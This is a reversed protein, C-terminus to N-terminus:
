ILAKIKQVLKLAQPEDPAEAYIRIIPETNSKRLHLWRDKWIFKIGDIINKEANEFLLTAKKIIEDPDIKDLNLKDKVIKFQPMSQHIKSLSDMSQSMRNLIMTVGVLSDRGLHAERLIVGGNGEGGLNSNIENMKKVVNIEGVASRVVSSNKEKALKELALSSSLNLVFKESQNLENLYSDAAIVITYEEGLPEGEENVIALRDADPDIAFGVDANSDKVMKSLDKLNEPLPETGRTFNGDPECNLEIVECGLSQLMLPLAQAGAGNVSDIVVKFKRKQIRNLKICKLSVCSIIHKQIANQEPWIIGLDDAIKVAINKDVIDFLKECEDPHFFTSDERVFKLGNWEIPNHSATVIFGGVAETSNVMFQVTPTPVIDCHIVTRGLKVLQECMVELILDGSPRSDRGAVIVGDPLLQHLGNAYNVAINPTLHSDVLGRVGSISRILM